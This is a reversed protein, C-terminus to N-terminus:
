IPWGGNSMRELTAATHISIHEWAVAFRTSSLHFGPLQQLAPLPDRDEGQIPAHHSHASRSCYYRRGLREGKLVQYYQDRLLRTISEENVYLDSCRSRDALFDFLSNHYFHFCPEGREDALGVLSSLSGLVYETEGPYSELLGKLYWAPHKLAAESRILCIWEVARLPEPSTHIIRNYVADLPAFPEAKDLRRWDLLRRLQQQPPGLRTNNVFQIVTTAYIFQGSSERVLLGIVDKSVWTSPLHFRRGIESFMADLFLRIDADPRYKDDLFINLAPRTSAFFRKITSEPRSSIIVRSPFAPDTCARSLASLIEKQSNSGSSEDDDQCEDLADIIILGPWDQMNSRGSVRRLPKLILEELQQDLHREFVMPDDEIVALVEERLGVISKHQILRYVLTPIVTKKWRRSKSGAFASFFFSAALLGQKYFEDAITGAIATKGSGAPGTLWLFRKPTDDGDDCRVWNM